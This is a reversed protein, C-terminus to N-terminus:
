EYLRGQKYQNICLSEKFGIRYPVIQYQGADLRYPVLQYIDSGYPVTKWTDAFAQLTMCTFMLFIFLKKIM